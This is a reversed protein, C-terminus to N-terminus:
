KHKDITIEVFVPSLKLTDAIENISWNKRHLNMIRKIQDPNDENAAFSETSLGSNKLMSTTKAVYQLMKEVSSREKQVHLILNDLDTVKDIASRLNDKDSVASSLEEQMNAIQHQLGMAYQGLDTIKDSIEATSGMMRNVSDINLLMEDVKTKRNELEDLSERLEEYRQLNHLLLEEVQRAKEKETELHALFSGLKQAEGLSNDLSDRALLAKDTSNELIAISNELADAQEGLAKVTSQGSSQAIKIESTLREMDKKLNELEQMRGQFKEAAGELRELVDTKKIFDGLRRDYERVRESLRDFDKQAQDRVKSEQNWLEQKLEGVAKRAIELQGSFNDKNERNMIEAEHKLGDLRRTADELFRESEDRLSSLTKNEIEKLERSINDIGDKISNFSSRAETLTEEYRGAWTEQDQKQANINDEFYESIRNHLDTQLADVTKELVEEVEHIHRDRNESLGQAMLLINEKERTFAEKIEKINKELENVSGIKEGVQDELLNATAEIGEFTTRYAEIYKEELTNTIDEIGAKLREDNETRFREELNQMNENVKERMLDGFVDMKKDIKEESLQLIKEAKEAVGHVRAQLGDVSSSFDEECSKIRAGARRSIEELKQALEEEQASFAKQTQELEKRVDLLKEELGAELHTRLGGELVKLKDQIELGHSNLGQIREALAAEFATSASRIEAQVQAKEGAFFERQEQLSAELGERDLLSREKLEAWRDLIEAANSEAMGRLVTIEQHFHDKLNDIGMGASEKFERMRGSMEETSLHLDEIKERIEGDTESLEKQAKSLYSSLDAQMTNFFGELEKKSNTTLQTMISDYEEKLNQMDSRLRALETSGEAVLNRMSIIESIKQEIDEFEARIRRYDKLSDGINGMEQRLERYLSEGENLYTDFEEAKKQLTDALNRLRDIAIEAPIIKDNFEKEKARLTQDIKREVEHIYNRLSRLDANKADTWRFYFLLASFVVLTILPFLLEM